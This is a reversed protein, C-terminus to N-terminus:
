ISDIIDGRVKIDLLARDARPVANAWIIPFDINALCKDDWVKQALLLASLLIPRWNKSHLMLGSLAMLRNVYVLAIINCEPSFQAIKFVASM